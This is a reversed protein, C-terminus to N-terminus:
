YKYQETTTKGVKTTKGSKQQKGAKTSAFTIRNKVM